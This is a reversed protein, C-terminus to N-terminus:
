LLLYFSKSRIMVNLSASKLIAYISKTNWDFLYPIYFKSFKSFFVSLIGSFCHVASILDKSVNM